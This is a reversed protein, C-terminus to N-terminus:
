PAIASMCLLEGFFFLSPYQQVAFFTNVLVYGQKVLDFVSMSLCTRIFELHVCTLIINFPRRPLFYKM